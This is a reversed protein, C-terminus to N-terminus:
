WGSKVPTITQIKALGQTTPLSAFAYSIADIADDHQGEPFALLEENFWAPINNSDHHVLRQEYRTLLPGFRTLKDKDPRIGRVPLKTTRSLEQIVATQFQTQEIAVIIPKHRAAANIIHNLIENFGCRHREIEILYVFGTIPDRSMAAIVTYDATEKESIALDVGLVIPINPTAKGYKIYEPKVLGAGFTIFEALYEQRFVLEPMETAINHIDQPDIYPNISTPMQFSQWEPDTLGKQYLTHFYNIGRPTSIFWAEGHLDTLTPAIARQWITELHRAHAAEDIVVRKYKRGRGADVDELTWFDIVGGTTLLIRMDTRNASKILPKLTRNILSWVDLLYKYKPAFYAVPAGNIASGKAISLWYSALRTKGFRRGCAAVKFRSKDQFITQQGGHLEVKKVKIISVPLTSM